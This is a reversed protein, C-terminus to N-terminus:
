ELIKQLGVDAILGLQLNAPMGLRDAYSRKGRRRAAKKRYAAIQL